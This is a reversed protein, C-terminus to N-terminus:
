PCCGAGRLQVKFLRDINTNAVCFRRAQKQETPPSPKSRTSARWLGAVRLSDHSFWRAWHSTLGAARYKYVYVHIRELDNSNDCVNVTTSCM